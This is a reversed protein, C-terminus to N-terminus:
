STVAPKRDLARALAELRREVAEGVLVRRPKSVELRLRKGGLSLATGRLLRGAGASLTYALRLTLGLRYAERLGDEDLLHFAPRTVETEDMGAYRTHVALALFARGAHDIGALPMRLVRLFATEARYDPHENWAIDSLIAAALHLRARDGDGRKFLPAAWDVLAQADIDHRADRRAHDRATAILPDVRREAASLRDFLCGERLGYASFVLRKPKIRRLVRELVLAALPLTDVRKRSVPALRELSERGQMGVLALFDEAKSRGIAYGHIVRLPYDVHAMHLRALARWAGGVAIFDRGGAGDLWPLAALRDDIMDILWGRRKDAFARLRLPGFPLTENRGIGGRDLAVLELSAGGLDGMAGRAGPMGSLVGLASLRAEDNGRLVRMTLGTERRVRAVFQPGNAADRVAATGVPDVHAVGMARALAAFRALNAIAMAAADPGIEGSRELDRGLGCLVKENFVPPAGPAQRDFVVLRISNSGIDIVGYRGNARPAM